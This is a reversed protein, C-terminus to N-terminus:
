EKPYGLGTKRSYKRAANAGNTTKRGLSQQKEESLQQKEECATDLERQVRNYAQKTEQYIQTEMKRSRQYTRQGPCGNCCNLKEDPYITTKDRYTTARELSGAEPLSTKVTGYEKIEKSVNDRVPQLREKREELSCLDKETKVSKRRLIIFM